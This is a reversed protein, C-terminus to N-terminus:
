IIRWGDRYILSISGNNIQLVFGGSDNDVTGSVTIQNTECDGSEDKIVLVKGTIPSVPLTLTVISARNVGVYYDSSSIQYSSDTVLITEHISETVSEFSFKGIAGNYKLFRGDSISSRDVDDLMRLNVEGGGSITSLQTQVRQLLLRYHDNMQEQTVFNTYRLPDNWRQAEIDELVTIPRQGGIRGAYQQAVNEEIHQEKKKAVEDFPNSELIHKSINAEQLLSKLDDLASMKAV